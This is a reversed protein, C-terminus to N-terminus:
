MSLIWELVVSLNGDSIAQTGTAPMPVPGWSGAGGKRVKDFLASRAESRGRYRVAVERFSPGVIKKDPAHCALCAARAAIAEPQPSTGALQSDPQATMAQTPPPKAVVTPSPQGVSSNPVTPAVTVGPPEQPQRGAQTPSDLGTSPQHAASVGGAVFYFDGLVQDYIAPVQVHGVTQALRAVEVRVNRLVQHVPVGPKQMERIFVRTFLGNRVPDSNGLRDLAQQGEGAAYIVMQGNAGAVGTLGRGGLSRGSGAFPNDRCADVIALTFAPRASRLDALVRSLELADDRVQDESQNRVNVPLLHNSAGLQVGHGSFFFVVEDGGKIRQRLARVDDLMERQTRDTKLDVQYGAGRLAEAMAQADSRANRLKSIQEYGDNGIVLALRQQAWAPLICLWGVLVGAVWGVTSSRASALGDTGM